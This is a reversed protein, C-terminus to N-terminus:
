LTIARCRKMTSWPANEGRPAWIVLGEQMAEAVIRKRSEPWEARAIFSPSFAHQTGVQANFIADQIKREAPGDRAEILIILDIDSKWTAEGRAASGFLVIVLDESERGLANRLSHLARAIEARVELQPVQALLPLDSMWPGPTAWTLAASRSADISIHLSVDRLRYRAESGTPTRVREGHIVGLAALAKLHPLLTSKALHTERALETLTSSGALLADLIRRVSPKFLLGWDADSM